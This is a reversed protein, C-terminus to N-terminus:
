GQACLCCFLFTMLFRTVQVFHHHETDPKQEQGVECFNLIFFARFYACTLGM